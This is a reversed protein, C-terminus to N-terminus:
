RRAQARKAAPTKAWKALMANTRTQWGPGSARLAQAVEFDLRLTVSVKKQEKDMFPRGLSREYAKVVEPMVERAPRMKKFDAATLEPVDYDDNKKKKM